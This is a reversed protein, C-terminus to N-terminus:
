KVAVNLIYPEPGVGHEKVSYLQRFGARHFTGVYDPWTWRCSNLVRAVEVRVTGHDDIIHIRNGLVGYTTMERTILTTLRVGNKEYIPLTEFPGEREFLRKILPGKDQDGSWQDAGSFIFKGGPELVASVGKASAMLSRVSTIWAFADSFVCDYRRGSTEGLKEWRSHFLHINQGEEEALEVAHAVAIKSADCGDVRYGMEALIITKWGLGCSCDLVTKVDLKHLLSDLVRRTGEKQERFKPQWQDKAFWTWKWITDWAKAGTHVTLKPKSGMHNM